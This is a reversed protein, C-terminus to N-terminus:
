ERLEARIWLLRFRSTKPVKLPVPRRGLVVRASNRLLGMIYNENTYGLRHRNIAKITFGANDLIAKIHSEGVFSLHDPLYLSGPFEQRPIDAANGTVLVLQCSPEMHSKIEGLFEVPNPLHSFVNILSVHTFKAHIDSVRTNTLPIGLSKSKKVKAECPEIGLLDSGSATLNSLAQVFEGYGAGLDLWRCPKSKLEEHPFLESIRLTFDSVRRASYRGITNLLGTARRHM